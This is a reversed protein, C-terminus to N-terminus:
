NQSGNGGIINQRQALLRKSLSNIRDIRDLDNGKSDTDAHKEPADLGLIKCRREICDLVNKLYRPDGAQYTKVVTAETESREGADKKRTTRREVVGVSREWAAWSQREVEDIKQLEIEKAADFDRVRSDLWESRIQKLDRSVNSQNIGLEKAIHSQLMGRRYMGAVKERRSDVEVEDTKPLVVICGM